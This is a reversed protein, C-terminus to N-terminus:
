DEKGRRVAQLVTDVDSIGEGEPMERILDKLARQATNMFAPLARLIKIQALAKGQKVERAVHSMVLETVMVSNAAREQMLELVGDRDKVQEKLEQLRSRQPQDLAAEGRAQFAYAGHKRTAQQRQKIEAESMVDINGSAPM